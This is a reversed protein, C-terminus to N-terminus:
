GEGAAPKHRRMAAGRARSRRPSRPAGGGRIGAARRQMTRLRYLLARIAALRCRRCVAGTTAGGCTCGAASARLREARRMAVAGRRRPRRPGSALVREITALTTPRGRNVFIEFIRGPECGSAALSRIRAVILPERRIRAVFL